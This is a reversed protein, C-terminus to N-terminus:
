KRETFEADESGRIGRERKEGMAAIIARYDEPIAGGFHEKLGLGAGWDQRRVTAEAMVPDIGAARLTEAVEELERARREGHEVVRSMMYGALRSWNMGPFTEDLSAFVREDAGYHVAGLACEFLLAELGKVIISRCMKVAVASGVRDSVVELRMGAPTLLEAFAPANAGGLLIPVRHGYPPVPAMVAAEVFRAGASTVTQEIARKTDPSVSNLDAYYHRPQLYAATQAAAEVASAATVVSLLIECEDAVDAPSDLLPVGTQQARSTIYEGLGPTRANIDYARLHEVGAGRLGKALHYGAEGFGIFGIKLDSTM